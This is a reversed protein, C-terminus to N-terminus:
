KNKRLNLINWAKKSNRKGSFSENGLPFADIVNVILQTFNSNFIESM